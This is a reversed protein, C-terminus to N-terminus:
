GAWKLNLVALATMGGLMGGLATGTEPGFTNKRGDHTAM